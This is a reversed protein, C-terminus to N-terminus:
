RTDAFLFSLACDLLVRINPRNKWWKKSLSAGDGYLLDCEKLRDLNRRKAAADYPQQEMSLKFQCKDCLDLPRDHRLSVGPEWLDGEKLDLFRSSDPQYYFLCILCRAKQLNRDCVSCIEEIRGCALDSSYHFKSNPSVCDMPCAPSDCLISTLNLLNRVSLRIRSLSVCNEDLTAFGIVRWVCKSGLELARSPVEVSCVGSQGKEGCAVCDIYQQGDFGFITFGLVYSSFWPEILPLSFNWEPLLPTFEIWEPRSTGIGTLEVTYPLKEDDNYTIHVLPVWINWCFLNARNERCRHQALSSTLWQQTM